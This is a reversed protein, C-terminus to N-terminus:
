LVVKRKEQAAERVKQYLESYTPREIDAFIGIPFKTLREELPLADYADKDVVMDKIWNMCEIPEGMKNKRGLNIHCNSFVDFFSYGKHLFGAEFIADMQKINTMTARAVFGAGAGMALTCANFAPDVSGYQATVTWMGQPTTPSTQSNTLGYIFNNILIHKLDVNRRAAHITHNGGIALGDGDGTVVIVHKDPHALKIGTAFALARGHTTHVTNCDIYSSMRGSCGIGAVVCVDDMSWGINHIVRVISRMIMDDGCGPCWQTPLKESRLYERPNFAM